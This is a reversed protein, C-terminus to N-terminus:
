LAGARGRRGDVRRRGGRARRGGNGGRLGLRRRLAQEIAQLRAPLRQRPLPGRAFPGLRWRVEAGGSVNAAERTGIVNVALNASGAWLPGANFRVKEGRILLDFAPADFKSFDLSGTAAPDREKVARDDEVLVRTARRTLGILRVPVSGESM